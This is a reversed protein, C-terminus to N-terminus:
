KRRDYLLKYIRHRIRYITSSDENPRKHARLIFVLIWGIIGLIIAIILGILFPVIEGHTWVNDAKYPDTDKRSEGLNNLYDGDPDETADGLVANLGHEFEWGDPIGDSDSDRNQPDSNIQYEQINKLEDGDPDDDADSKDQPNLQYKREWADDMQDGDQDNQASPPQNVQTSSGASPSSNGVPASSSGNGGSTTAANRQVNGNGNTSNTSNGSAPTSPASANFVLPANDIRDAIGDGDTDQSATSGIYGAAEVADVGWGASALSSIRVYRYAKGTSRWDYSVNQVSSGANLFLTWQAQKLQQMNSDYLEVNLTGQVAVPGLYVRLNNTGEQGAGMDLTLSSGVGVFTASQGDPAGVAANSNGINIGGQASLSDAHATYPGAAQATATSLVLMATILLSTGLPLLKKNTVM